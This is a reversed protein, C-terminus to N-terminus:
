RRVPLVHTRAPVQRQGQEEPLSLHRAAGYRGVRRDRGASQGEDPQVHDASVSSVTAHTPVTWPTGSQLAPGGLEPCNLYFFLKVSKCIKAQSNCLFANPPRVEWNEGEMGKSSM